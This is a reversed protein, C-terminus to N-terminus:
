KEPARRQRYNIVVLGAALVAFAVSQLYLLGIFLQPQYEFHVHSKGDPLMIGIQNLNVKFKKVGSGNLAVQWDDRYYENLVLLSRRNTRIDLDLSNHTAREGATEWRLVSADTLWDSIERTDTSSIYLKNLPSDIRELTDFFQQVNSYSLAIETSLFFHPQADTTSYLKCGEIERELSYGSAASASEGCELDYKAGLLQAFRRLRPAAFMEQAEAFPLPNMFAEFTRLRYYAANMSWYQTSFHTDHVILRYNEVDPIRAIEQLARNSRVNEEMFYDGDSTKIIQVPYQLAPYLAIAVLLLQIAGKFAPLFRRAFLVVLFLGFSWFLTSDDILTEYSRRIWYSGLLLVFFATLVIAHKRLDRLRGSTTLHEFGFAALTCTALAFVYLHRGPERIKNWLPLTYNIYALGLHSGTLSLLAYLGLCFLPLIAWNRHRPFLSFAALFVPIIGLYPDGTPTPISLPFVVKALEGPKAQGTLFAAFPIKQNGVIPGADTWRVMDRRAFITTPILIASSILLSGAALAILNRAPRIWRTRENRHRIGYALVLVASCYVFHILPQAPSASVLLYISTWGLVVGTKPYRDELILFVSGLALPLWSYPGIINIWFLYQYTNASFAFLTAGMVSSIMRLHFIRMMAYTSLWLIAVHLLTVYHVHRLTDLPTNYLNWGFFYFPYLLSFQPTNYLPIGGAISNIWYPFEHAAFSKSIHAFLPLIFHTNDLFTAVCYEGSLYKGLFAWFIGLLVFPILIPELFRAKDIRAVSIGNNKV